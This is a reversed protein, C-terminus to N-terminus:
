MYTESTNSSADHEVELYAYLTPTNHMILYKKDEQICTYLQIHEYM